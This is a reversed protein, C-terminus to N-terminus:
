INYISLILSVSERASNPTTGRATSAEIGPSSKTRPMKAPVKGCGGIMCVTAGNSQLASGPRTTM